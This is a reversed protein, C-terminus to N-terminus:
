PGSCTGCGGGNALATGALTLLWVLTFLAGILRPHEALFRGVTSNAM